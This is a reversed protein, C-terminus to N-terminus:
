MGYVHRMSQFITALDSHRARWGLLQRARASSAVLEAPDGPRREVIRVPIRQGLVEEAARIMELVSSGSEAGLNVELSGNEQFLHEMAAIHAVALDNVHVYDRICTGDATPYDNGFVKLEERLGSAAEMVLPCLNAANRERATVRRRLDYGTANFYRLSAYRLGTLRAFWRLNEEIALKTYGYYNEPRTPHSEDIPLFDPSGYVAASSSFIFRGVGAKHMAHLLRVTGNLNHVAYEHPMQMSEGAAKLAAFHFVVDIGASLIAEPEPGQLLDGIVLEAADPVNAADGTSLDDLVVVRHGAECLDHVVHSGIYGAGGVVLISKVGLSL